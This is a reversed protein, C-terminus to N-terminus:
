FGGPVRLAEQAAAVGYEIAKNVIEFAPGVVPLKAALESLFPIVEEVGGEQFKNFGESATELVAKLKEFKGEAKGAEDGVKGLEDKLKDAADASEELDKQGAIQLVLKIIEESTM